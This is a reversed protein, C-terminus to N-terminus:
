PRKSFNEELGMKRSSCTIHFAITEDLPTINLHDLLFEQIFEVPEHIRDRHGRKEEGVTLGAAPIKGM